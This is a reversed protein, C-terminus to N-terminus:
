NDFHFKNIEKFLDDLLRIETPFQDGSYTTDQSTIVNQNYVIPVSCM